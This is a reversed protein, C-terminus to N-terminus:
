TTEGISPSAKGNNLRMIRKHIIIYGIVLLLLGLLLWLMNAHIIEKGKEIMELYNMDVTLHGFYAGIALLVLCWLGAGLVTFVSFRYFNMRCLGAPISILQRIGPLLRCSFTALEGYELFIQDARDLTDVSLFFYKGYQRLFPRGLKVALAYNLYAGALSGLLGALFALSLDLPVLAFSLEGRWALFGAPIMVVESPFPIFSSEITMFVFVLLFGWTPAHAALSEIYIAFSETM